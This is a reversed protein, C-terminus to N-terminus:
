RSRIAVPRERERERERERVGHGKYRQKGLIASGSSAAMFIGFKELFMKEENDNERRIKGISM